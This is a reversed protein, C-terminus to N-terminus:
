TVVAALGDRSFQVAPTDMFCKSTSQAAALRHVSCGIELCCDSWAALYLRLPVEELETGERELFELWEAEECIFLMDEWVSAYRRYAEKFDKQALLTWINYLDTEIFATCTELM